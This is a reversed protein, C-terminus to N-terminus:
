ESRLLLGTRLSWGELFCTVSKIFLTLYYFHRQEPFDQLKNQSKAKPNGQGHRNGAWFMYGTSEEFDM